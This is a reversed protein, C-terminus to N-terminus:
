RSGGSGGFVSFRDLRIPMAFIYLKARVIKIRTLEKVIKKKKRKSKLSTVYFIIKGRSEHNRQLQKYFHIYSNSTPLTKKESRKYRVRHCAEQSKGV